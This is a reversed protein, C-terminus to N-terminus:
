VQFPVGVIMEGPVGVGTADFDKIFAIAAPTPDFPIGSIFIIHGYVQCKVKFKEFLALAIPCAECSNREGKLIHSQGIKVSVPKLDNM